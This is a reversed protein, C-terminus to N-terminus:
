LDRRHRQDYPRHVYIDIFLRMEIHYSDSLLSTVTLPAFTQKLGRDRIDRFSSQVAWSRIGPHSSLWFLMGMLSAFETVLDKKDRQELAIKLRTETGIDHDPALEFMSPIRDIAIFQKKLCTGSLERFSPLGQPHDWHGGDPFTFRLPSSSPCKGGASLMASKRLFVSSHFFHPDRRKGESQRSPSLALGNRTM